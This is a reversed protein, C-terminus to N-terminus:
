EQNEEGNRFVWYLMKCQNNKCQVILVPTNEVPGHGPVAMLLDNYYEFVIHGCGFCHASKLEAKSSNDFWLSIASKTGTEKYLLRM